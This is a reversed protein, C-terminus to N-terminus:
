ENKGGLSNDARLPSSGRGALVLVKHAVMVGFPLFYDPNHSDFEGLWPGLGHPCGVTELGQFYYVSGVPTSGAEKV